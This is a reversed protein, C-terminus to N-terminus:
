TSIFLKSLVWEALQLLDVIIWIVLWVPLILYFPLFLQYLPLSAAVYKKDGKGKM